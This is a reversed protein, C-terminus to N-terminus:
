RNITGYLRTTVTVLNWRSLDAALQIFTLCSIIDIKVAKSALKSKFANKFYM